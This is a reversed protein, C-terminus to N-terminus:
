VKWRSPNLLDLNDITFAKTAVQKQAANVIDILQEKSNVGVLVKDIEEINLAYNLAYETLSLGTDKVLEQYDDFEKKWISFYFPINNFDLLIGQLFVSRVHIEIGKYNLAKFQGGQILRNDFVNFPVQILDFDFNKLLFNVQEPTYTSFGIKRVLGQQKLEIINRYLLDFQENDIDDVNHVLLGYVEDKNLSKMSKYFDGIVENVDNKLPVTKTIIQFDGVDANGLIEESNGYTAATDLLNIDNNKAFELISKVEKIQVKGGNNTVGYDLGFQVTGLALKNM